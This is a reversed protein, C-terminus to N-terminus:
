RTRLLQSWGKSVELVDVGMYSHDHGTIPPRSPRSWSLGAAQAPPATTSHLYSCGAKCVHPGISMSHRSSACRVLHNSNALGYRPLPPPMIHNHLGM